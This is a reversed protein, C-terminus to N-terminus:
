CPIKCGLHHLFLSRLSYVGPFSSPISPLFGGLYNLHTFGQILYRSLNVILQNAPNRGDVAGGDWIFSKPTLSERRKHLFEVVHLFKHVYPIEGFAGFFIPFLDSQLVYKYSTKEHKKNKPRFFM